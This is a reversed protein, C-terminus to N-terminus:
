YGARELEQLLNTFFEAYAMKMARHLNAYDDHLVDWATSESSATVTIKKVEAGRTLTLGLRIESGVALSRGSQPRVWGRYALVEVQVKIPAPGADKSVAYGARTLGAAVLERSMTEVTEPYSFLYGAEKFSFAPIKPAEDTIVRADTVGTIEVVGKTVALAAASPIPTTNKLFVHHTTTSCGSLFLVVLLALCVPNKMTPVVGSSV